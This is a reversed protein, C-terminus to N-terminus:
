TVVQCDCPGHCGLDPIRPEFLAVDDTGKGGGGDWMGRGAQWKLGAVTCV